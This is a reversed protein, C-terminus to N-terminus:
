ARHFVTRTVPYKCSIDVNVRSCHIDWQEFIRFVSTMSDEGCLFKCVLLFDFGFFLATGDLKEPFKWDVHDLLADPKSM